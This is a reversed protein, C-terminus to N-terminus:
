EVLAGPPVFGSCTTFRPVCNAQTCATCKPCEGGMCQAWCNKATCGGLEGFCAACTDTYGEATQICTTMCEATGLCQKGCSTMDADFAAKGKAAWIGEDAANCSCNSALLVVLPFYM